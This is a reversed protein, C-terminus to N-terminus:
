SSSLLRAAGHFSQLGPGRCCQLRLLLLMPSGVVPLTVHLVIPAHSCVDGDLYAWLLFTRVGVSAEYYRGSVHYEAVMGVLEAACVSCCWIHGVPLTGGHHAWFLCTDAPLM